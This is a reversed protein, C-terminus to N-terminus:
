GRFSCLMHQSHHPYWIGYLGCFRATTLPENVPTYYEVYPFKQAVRSAYKALESPFCADSLTAHSPGSGHHVLGAITRIRYRRLMNLQCEVWPWCNDKCNREWLVPYRLAKIGLSVVKYLDLMGRRYHGCYALQDGYFDKTRTYSCEIGGWVEPINNLM